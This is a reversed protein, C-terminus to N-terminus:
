ESTALRVYAAVDRIQQETLKSRYPPMQNIGETVASVVQEFAPQRLDLDPGVRGTTGADELRHCSGCSPQALETFVTKGAVPDGSLPLDTSSPAPGCAALAAALMLTATLPLRM